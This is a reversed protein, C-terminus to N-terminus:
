LSNTKLMLRQMPSIVKDRVASSKVISRSCNFYKPTGLFLLGSLTRVSAWNGAWQVTGRSGSRPLTSITMAIILIVMVAILLIDIYAYAFPLVLVQGHTHFSRQINQSDADHELLIFQYILGRNDDFGYEHPLIRDAVLDRSKRKKRRWLM